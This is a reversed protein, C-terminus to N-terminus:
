GKNKCAWVVYSGVFEEAVRSQDNGLQPWYKQPKLLRAWQEGLETSAGSLVWLFFLWCGNVFALFM